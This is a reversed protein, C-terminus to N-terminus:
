SHSSASRSSSTKETLTVSRSTTNTKLGDSWSDIVRSSRAGLTRSSRGSLTRKREDGVTYACHEDDDVQEIVTKIRELVRSISPREGPSESWTSSVVHGLSAFADAFSGRDDEDGVEATPALISARLPRAGDIIAQRQQAGSKSSAEDYPRKFESQMIENIVVGFSYVDCATTPTSTNSLLEPAAYM